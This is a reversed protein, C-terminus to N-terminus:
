EAFEGFIIYIQWSNYKSSGHDVERIHIYNSRLRINYPAYDLLHTHSISAYANRVAATSEFKAKAKHLGRDMLTSDHVTAYSYVKLVQCYHPVLSSVM